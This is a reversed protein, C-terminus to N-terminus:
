NTFFTEINKIKFLIKFIAKLKIRISIVCNEIGIELYEIGM